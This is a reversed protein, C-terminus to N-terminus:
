KKGMSWMQIACGDNSTGGGKTVTLEFDACNEGAPTRLARISSTKVLEKAKNAEEKTYLVVFPYSAGEKDLPVAFSVVQGTGTNATKEVLEPKGPEQYLLYVTANSVIKGNDMYKVKVPITKHGQADKKADQAAMSFSVLSMMVSAAVAILMKKKM